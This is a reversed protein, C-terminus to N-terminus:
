RKFFVRKLLPSIEKEYEDESMSLDIYDIGM